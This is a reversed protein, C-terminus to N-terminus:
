KRVYMCMGNKELAIDYKQDLYQMIKDNDINADFITKATSDAYNIVLIDNEGSLISNIQSDIADPFDEYPIQPTYFYKLEPVNDFVIYFLSNNNVALMSKYQPFKEKYIVYMENAIETKQYEKSVDNLMVRIPMRLNCLISMIFVGIVLLINKKIRIRKVFYLILPLVFPILYEYYHGYAYGSMGVSILSFVLSLVYISKMYADVSSRAIVILSALCLGIIIKSGMNSFLSMFKDLLNMGSHTAYRINFLISADIMQKLCKFRVCYIIAPLVGILIGFLGSCVSRMFLKFKRDVALKVLVVCVIGIWMFVLNLRLFSVVGVCIGWIMMYYALHKNEEKDVTFSVLYYISILQFTIAYTEVFNGGQYTVYNVLLLLGILAFFFSRRYTVDYKQAIKYLLIANTIMFLTEVVYLGFSSHKSILAGIYNLFYIYIGKHDFLDRYPVKRAAMGLGMTRFVASDVTCYDIFPSSGACFFMLIITYVTLLLFVKVEQNRGIHLEQM